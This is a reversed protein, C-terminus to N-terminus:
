ILGVIGYTFGVVFYYVYIAIIGVGGIAAVKLPVSLQKFRVKGEMKAEEMSNISGCWVCVM